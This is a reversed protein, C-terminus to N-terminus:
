RKPRPELVKGLLETQSHVGLKVFISKLHNRVTHPSIFLERAIAHPRKHSVLAHLVERERPSLTGLEVIDRLKSRHEEVPTALLPAARELAQAIRSLVERALALQELLEERSPPTPESVRGLAVRVAALVQPATFPKVVFGSPGISQVRSMTDEDTRASVFVIATHEPIDGSEALDLGATKTEMSIDLLLVSPRHQEIAAILDTSRSVVGLVQHGEDVLLQELQRALPADDEAM